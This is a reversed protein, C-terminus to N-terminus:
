NKRSTRPWCAVTASTRIPRSAACFPTPRRANSRRSISAFVAETPFRDDLDRRYATAFDAAKHDSPALKPARAGNWYKPPYKAIAVKRERPAKSAFFSTQIM